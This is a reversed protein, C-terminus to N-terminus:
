FVPNLLNSTLALSRAPLTSPSPIVSIKKDPISAPGASQYHTVVRRQQDRWACSARPVTLKRIPFLVGAQYFTSWVAFVKFPSQKSTCGYFHSKGFLSLSFDSKAVAKAFCYINQNFQWPLVGFQTCQPATPPLIPFQSYFFSMAPRFNLRFQIQIFQLLPAQNHHSHRNSAIIDTVSAHSDCPWTDARIFPNGAREGLCRM